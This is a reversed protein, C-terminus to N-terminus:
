LKSKRIKKKELFFYFLYIDFINLRVYKSLVGGVVSGGNRVYGVSVQQASHIPNGSMICFYRLGIREVKIM